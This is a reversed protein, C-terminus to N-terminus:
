NSRARRSIWTLAELFVAPLDEGNRLYGHWRYKGVIHVSIGEYTPGSFLVIFDQGQTEWQLGMVGFDRFPRAASLLPEPIDSVVQILRDESAQSVRPEFPDAYPANAVARIQSVLHNREVM